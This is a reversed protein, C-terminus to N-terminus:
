HLPFDWVTCETATFSAECQTGSCAAFTPKLEFSYVHSQRTGFQSLAAHQYCSACRGPKSVYVTNLRILQVFRFLTSIAECRPCFFTSVTSSTFPDANNYKQVDCDCRWCHPSGVLPCIRQCHLLGRSKNIKDSKRSKGKDSFSHVCVELLKTSEIYSEGIM